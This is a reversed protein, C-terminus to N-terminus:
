FRRPTLLGFEDAGNPLHEKKNHIDNLSTDKVKFMRLHGANCGVSKAWIRSTPRASIRCKAENHMFDMSPWGERSLIVNTDRIRSFWPLGLIVDVRLPAVLMPLFWEADNNINKEGNWLTFSGQIIRTADYIGDNNGWKVSLSNKM